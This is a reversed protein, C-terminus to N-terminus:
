NLRLLRLTGDADGVALSKDDSSWAITSVAASCPDSGVMPGKRNAPQWLLVHGEPGGSALLFGRRQWSLATIPGEHGKLLTPQSGEPGRGGCDWICVAPSGGCALYRSTCDWSLAQIKTAYGSMQLPDLPKNINWFHVTADQNGHALMAGNPSWAVALPSGKWPFEIRLEGSAVDYLRVGGYCAVSLQSGRWSLASITSAHDSWERVLSGHNDWIRVKKGAASALLSGDAHFALSEVWAAGGDLAAREQWLTTDWIRIKGDQGSSALLEGTPKWAVCMTGFRHGALNALRQGKAADFIEISGSVTAAAVQRSCPSWALGIIHDPVRAMWVRQM